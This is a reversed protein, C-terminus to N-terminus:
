AMIEQLPGVQAKDDLDSDKFGFMEQPKDVSHLLSNYFQSVGFHGPKGYGPFDLYQGGLKLRSNTGIVLLPWEMTTSHHTDPADSMYVIVTNDMMTGNGEPIAEFRDVMKAVLGMTWARYREYLPMGKSDRKNGTSHGIGHLSDQIGIGPYPTANVETAHVDITAVNSLGGILASTALEFQAEMRTTAVKSTFRKDHEPACKKLTEQNGLLSYQRKALQDYASLYVDLEHASTPGLAKKVRKVDGIMYDLLNRKVHFDKTSEGGAAVGFYVNYAMEPSLIIPVTKGAASASINLRAARGGNSSMGVGIWPLIGPLSQGLQYDITIGQPTQNSPSPIRYLGLCGGWTSHGGGTVKGSLGQIVTVRKKHRELPAFGNPLKHQTLDHKQFSERDKHEKFPISEPCAQIADFGNSQVIFVFRKSHAGQGNENALVNQILPSLLTAGAGLSLGKLAQRRTTQM